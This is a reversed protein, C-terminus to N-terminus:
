NLLQTKVLKDLKFKDGVFHGAMIHISIWGILQFLPDEFYPWLNFRFMNRLNKFWLTMFKGVVQVSHLSKNREFSLLLFSTM